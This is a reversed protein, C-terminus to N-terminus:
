RETVTALNMSELESEWQEATDAYLQQLRERRLRVVNIDELRREEGCADTVRRDEEGNSSTAQATCWAVNAGVQQRDRLDACAKFLRAEERVLAVVNADSRPPM